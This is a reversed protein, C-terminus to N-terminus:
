SFIFQYSSLEAMDTTTRIVLSRDANEVWELIPQLDFGILTLFFMYVCLQKSLLQFSM